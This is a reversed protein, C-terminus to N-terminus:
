MYSRYALGNYVNNMSAVIKFKLDDADTDPLATRLRRVMTDM